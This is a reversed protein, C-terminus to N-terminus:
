EDDGVLALARLIEATNWAQAFTGAGRRPLDGDYVEAIHDLGGRDLEPTFAELLARLRKRNRRTDDARLSAECYFGLLWPWVTGQHYARDREVPGGEYRPEYDPHDPALTRLGVPTLLDQEVRALVRKRKNRSLPSFELAAALVMNPRVSADVEGARWVDALTGEDELWFRKLFARRMRKLRARMAEDNTLEALHAVLSYYLASIEVACGHRPTVAEDAAVADMWTPNLDANGAHVLGDEDVFVVSTTSYM